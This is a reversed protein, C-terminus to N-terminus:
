RLFHNVVRIVVILVISFLLLTASSTISANFYTQYENYIYV